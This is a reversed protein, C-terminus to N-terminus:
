LKSLGAATLFGRPLSVEAVQAKTFVSSHALWYRPQLAGVLIM